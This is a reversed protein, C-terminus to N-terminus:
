PFKLLKIDGFSEESDTSNSKSKPGSDNQKEAVEFDRNNTAILNLRDERFYRGKTYYLVAKDRGSREMGIVTLAGASIFQSGYLQALSNASQYDGSYKDPKRNHHLYVVSCGRNKRVYKDIWHNLNLVTQDDNTSGGAIVSLSDLWVIEIHHKDIMELLTAQNNKNNLPFAHGIPFIFFNEQLTAIDGIQMETFFEQLEEHPMEASVFLSRKEQLTQWNLYNNGRAIAMAARLSLSTKGCGPAGFIVAQGAVPIIGKVIWDM